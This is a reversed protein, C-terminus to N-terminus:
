VQHSIKCSIFPLIIPGGWHAIPTAKCLALDAPQSNNVLQHGLGSSRPSLLFLEKEQARERMM